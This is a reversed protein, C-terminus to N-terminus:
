GASAAAVVVIRERSSVVVGGPREVTVAFLTPERVPLKALIPVVVEQAGAPINFVGGDVPYREDRTADFIWLQYQSESPDNVALGAFRMYGTQTEPDWVVDGTVSEAAPDETATWDRLLPATTAVFRERVQALTQVDLSAQSVVDVQLGADGGFRPWWATIALVIAAAAALWAFRSDSRTVAAPAGSPSAQVPSPFPIVGAGAGAPASQAIRARVDGPMPEEQWDGALLLAAVTRDIAEPDADPYGALLDKLEREESPSLGELAQQVLLDALRENELFRGSM